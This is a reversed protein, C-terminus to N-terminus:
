GRTAFYGYAVDSIEDPAVHERPALRLAIENLAARTAAPMVQASRQVFDFHGWDQGDHWLPLPLLFCTLRGRRGAQAPVSSIMTM